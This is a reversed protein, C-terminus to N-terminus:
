KSFLPSGSFIYLIIIFSSLGVSVISFKDINLSFLKVFKFTKIKFLILNFSIEAKFVHSNGLNRLNSKSLLSNVFLQMCTNLPKLNGTM